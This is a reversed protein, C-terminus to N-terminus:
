GGTSSPMGNDQNIAAWSKKVSELLATGLPKNHAVIASQTGDALESLMLAEHECGVVDLCACILTLANFLVMVFGLVQQCIYGGQINNHVPAGGNTHMSQSPSPSPPVSPKTLSRAKEM